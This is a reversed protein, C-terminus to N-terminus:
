PPPEWPKPQAIWAGWGIATADLCDGLRAASACSFLSLEHALLSREVRAQVVAKTIQSCRLADRWGTKDTRSLAQPHILAPLCQYAAVARHLQWGAEVSLSLISRKRQQDLRGHQGECFVRGIGVSAAISRVTGNGAFDGWSTAVAIVMPTEPRGPLHRREILQTEDLLAYGPKRGPDIALIM